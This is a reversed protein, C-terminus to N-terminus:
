KIKNKVKIQVKIVIMLKRKNNNIRKKNNKNSKNIKIKWHNIMSVQSLFDVRKNNLWKIKNM